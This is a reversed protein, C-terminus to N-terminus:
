SRAALPTDFGGRALHGDRKHALCVQVKMTEGGCGFPVVTWENHGLSRTTFNRGYVVTPISLGMPGLREELGTKVNGIIMNTIEAVADLVEDNVATYESMLFSSSLRCALEASCAVSGMGVWEGAMGILSVVGDQPEPNRHGAYPAGCALEMGLMTTFVDTAARAILDAMEEHSTGQRM